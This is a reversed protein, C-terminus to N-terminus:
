MSWFHCVILEQQWLQSMTGLTTPVGQSDRILSSIVEVKWCFRCQVVPVQRLASHPPNFHSLLRWNCSWFDGFGDLLEIFDDYREPISILGWFHKSSGSCFTFQLSVFPFKGFNMDPWM